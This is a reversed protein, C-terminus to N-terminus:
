VEAVPKEVAISKAKGKTKKAKSEVAQKAEQAKIKEHENRVAHGQAKKEALRAEEIAEDNPAAELGAAQEEITQAPEAALEKVPVEGKKYLLIRTNEENLVLDYLDSDLGLG